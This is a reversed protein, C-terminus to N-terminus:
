YWYTYKTIDNFDSITKSITKSMIESTSLIDIYQLKEILMKQTKHLSKYKIIQQFTNAVLKTLIRFAKRM